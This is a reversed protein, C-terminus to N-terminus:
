YPDDDDYYAHIYHQYLFVYLFCCELVQLRTNVSRYSLFYNEKVKKIFLFLSNKKGEAERERERERGEKRRKETGPHFPIKKRTNV